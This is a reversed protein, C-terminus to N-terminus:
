AARDVDAVADDRLVRPYYRAALVMLGAAMAGAALFISGLAGPGGLVPSLASALCATAAVPLVYRAIRANAASLRRARDGRTAIARVSQSTSPEQVSPGSQKWWVM